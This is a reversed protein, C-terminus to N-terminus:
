RNFNYTLLYANVTQLRLGSKMSHITLLARVQVTLLAVLLTLVLATLLATLLIALLATLAATLLTALSAAPLDYLAALLTLLAAVSAVSTM